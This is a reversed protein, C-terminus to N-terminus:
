PAFTVPSHHISLFSLFALPGARPAERKKIQSSYLPSCKWYIAFLSSVESKLKVGGLNELNKFNESFHLCVGYSRGFFSTKRSRTKDCAKLNNTKDSSASTKVTASIKPDL